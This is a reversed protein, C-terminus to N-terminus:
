IIPVIKSKTKENTSDMFWKAHVTPSDEDVAATWVKHQVSTPYMFVDQTPPFYFIFGSEMQINPTGKSNGIQDVVLAVESSDATTCSQLTVIFLLLLSYFVKKM